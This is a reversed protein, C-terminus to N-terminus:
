CGPPPTAAPLARRTRTLTEAAVYALAALALPVLYYVLRYVVLAALLESKGAYGALLTVFVAELVGLGAPIHALAGAGAAVLLVGVVTPYPVAGPLLMFLIGSMLLWNAAGMASQVAAMGPGPLHLAHGRVTFCRQRSFASFLAYAVGVALLGAGLYPWRGASLPWDRPLAPPHLSFIVGAVLAYGLWNTLMSLSAVRAIVGYTLGLRSYLRFRLALAGVLSGLNLNFVYSIFTVAMVPAAGLHHGTYRRGLLDFCSYLTLSAAALGAAGLLQPGTYARAAALVEDWAIGRAERVLLFTVGCFFLAGGLRRLWRRWPAPAPTQTATAVLRGRQRLARRIAHARARM